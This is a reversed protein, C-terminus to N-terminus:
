YYQIYIYCSAPKFGDINGLASHQVSFLLKIKIHCKISIFRQLGRFKSEQYHFDITNM